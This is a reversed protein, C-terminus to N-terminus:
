GASYRSRRQESQASRKPSASDSLIQLPSIDLVEAIHRAIIDRCYDSVVTTYGEKHLAELLYAKCHGTMSISVSARDTYDTIKGPLLEVPPKQIM